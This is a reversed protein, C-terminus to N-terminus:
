VIYCSRVYFPFLSTFFNSLSECFLCLFLLLSLSLSQLIWHIRFSLFSRFCHLGESILPHFPKLSPLSEFPLVDTGLIPFLPFFLPLRPSFPRLLLSTWLLFVSPPMGSKLSYLFRFIPFTLAVFQFDM